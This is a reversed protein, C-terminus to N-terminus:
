SGLKTRLVCLIGNDPCVKKRNLQKDQPGTPGSTYKHFGFFRKQRPDRNRYQQDGWKGKYHMIGLPSQRLGISSFHSTTDNFGYMYSSLTPDWLLGKSTYDEVVGFPLNLNPIAHGHTGVIAYNAHSGRASYTVPRQGVKEVVDYIFAQGNEHQSYWVATPKGDVFRIMNHEWDGVHDGLENGLVTNGQNYAYFYMYFADLFGAGRDNVIIACSIANETRGSADPKVGFLYSPDKTIDITSTL